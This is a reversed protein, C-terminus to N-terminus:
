MKLKKFLTEYNEIHLIQEKTLNIELCKIKQHYLLHIKKKKKLKMKPQKKSAYLFTIPKQTNKNTEETHECTHM